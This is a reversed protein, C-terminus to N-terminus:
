KIVLAEEIFFTSMPFVITFQLPGDFLHLTEFHLEFVDVAFMLAM